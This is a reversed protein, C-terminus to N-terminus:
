LQSQSSEHLPRVKINYPTRGRLRRGEDCAAQVDDAPEWTVISSKTINADTSFEFFPSDDYAYATTSALLAIVCLFKLTKM